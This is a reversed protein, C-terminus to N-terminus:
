GRGSAADGPGHVLNLHGPPFGAELLLEFLRNPTLPALESPKMVVTNGSALAPAVKHCVM